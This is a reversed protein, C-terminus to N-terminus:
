GNIIKAGSEHFPNYDHKASVANVHDITSRKLPVGRIKATHLLGQALLPDNDNAANHVAQHIADHMDADKAHEQVTRKLATDIFDKVRSRQTDNSHSSFPINHPTVTNLFAKARHKDEVYGDHIAEVLTKYPAHDPTDYARAHEYVFEPHTHFIHNKVSQNAYSFTRRDDVTGGSNYLNDVDSPTADPHLLTLGHGPYIKDLERAKDLTYNPNTETRRALIKVPLSDGLSVQHHFAKNIDDNNFHRSSLVNSLHRYEMKNENVISHAKNIIERDIRHEPTYEIASSDHDILSKLNSDSLSPHRAFYELSNMKNKIGHEVYRNVEKAGLGNSQHRLVWPVDTGEGTSNHDVMHNAIKNLSEKPLSNLWDTSEMQNVKDITKYGATGYTDLVHSIAQNKNEDTNLTQLVMRHPNSYTLSIPSHHLADVADTVKQKSYNAVRSFSDNYLDDPKTYLVDKKAPFHTQAWDSVHKTFSDKATGYLSDEPRLITHDEEDSRFPKLAIRAIPREIKEDDAHTLYAVHTGHKIDHELYHRNMGGDMNMCSTWGRGTSMSAVHHPEWSYAVHLQKANSAARNPDNEFASVVSPEAKTRRLAKGISTVRQHKDVAYGAHYDSGSPIRFGFKELHAAVEPHIPVDAADHEQLPYRLVEKGKFVHESLSKAALQKGGNSASDVWQKVQEVHKPDLAEQLFGSLYKM